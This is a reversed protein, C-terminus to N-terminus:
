LDTSGHVGPQQASGGPGSLRGRLGHHDHHQRRDWHGCQSDDRDPRAGKYALQTWPGDPAIVVKPRGFPDYKRYETALTTDVTPGQRTTVRHPQGSPYYSVERASTTPSGGRPNPRLVEERIPRGFDDFRLTRETLQADTGPEHESVVLYPPASDPHVYEM